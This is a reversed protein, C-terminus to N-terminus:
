ILGLIDDEDDEELKANSRQAAAFSAIEALKSQIEAANKYIEAWNLRPPQNQHREPKVFPAVIKRVEPQAFQSEIAQRLQQRQEIDDFHRKKRPADDGGHRVHVPKPVPPIGTLLAVSSSQSTDSVSRIRDFLFQPANSIPVLADAYLPKPTAQSSDEPQWLVRVPAYHAPPIFPLQAARLTEPTGFSTDSVSAPRAIQFPPLNFFPAVAETTLAKPTSASTDAPQWLVRIPALHPAPIFPAAQALLALPSGRSTDIPQYIRDRASFSYSSILLTFADGYLPKPTSQSTDAPQWLARQPAIHPPNFFPKGPDLYLAKPTGRSTDIPQWKTAIPAQHPTNHGVPMQQPGSLTSCLLNAAVFAAGIARVQVSGVQPMPQTVFPNAAGAAKFSAITAVSAALTVGGTQSWTASDTAASTNITYAIENASNTSDNQNVTVSVWSGGGPPTNTPPDSIGSTASAGTQLMAIVLDTATADAGTATVTFPGNVGSAIQLEHHLDTASIGTVRLVAVGGFVGGVEGTFTITVQTAGTHAPSLCTSIGVQKNGGTANVLFWPSYSNTGGTANDAIALGSPATTGAEIAALVVISEGAQTASINVVQSAVGAMSNVAVAQVVATM